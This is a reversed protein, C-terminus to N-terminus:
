LSKPSFSFSWFFSFFFHGCILRDRAGGGPIEMGFEM